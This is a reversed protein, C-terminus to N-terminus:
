IKTANLADDIAKYRAILDELSKISVPLGYKKSTEVEIELNIMLSSLMGYCFPYKFTNDPINIHHTTSM